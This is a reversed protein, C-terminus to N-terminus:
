RKVVEDWDPYRKKADPPIQKTWRRGHIYREMTICNKTVKPAEILELQQTM